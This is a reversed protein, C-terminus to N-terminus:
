KSRSKWGSWYPFGKDDRLMLVDSGKKVIAAVLAPKNNYIIKSGTVEVQDGSKIKVDQKDLYWSPGLHISLTDKGTYVLAHIGYGRRMRKAPMLREVSIVTGSITAVTSIDYMRNRPYQTNQQAFLMDTVLLPVIFIIFLLYAIRKM